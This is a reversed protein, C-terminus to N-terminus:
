IPSTDIGFLRMLFSLSTMNLAEVSELEAMMTNSVLILFLITVEIACM